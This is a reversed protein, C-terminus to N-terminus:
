DFFVETPPLRVSPKSPKAAPNAYGLAIVVPISYRGPIDLLQKVQVQDIGEMPCTALGHVQAAYLFTAAAFNNTQVGLGGDLREPGGRRLVERRSVSDQERIGCDAAFVVVVPAEKVKRGNKDLMAEALKERSEAARVTGPAGAHTQSDGPADQGARRGTPVGQVCLARPHSGGAAGDHQEPNAFSTLHGPVSPTPLLSAACEDSARSLPETTSASGGVVDLHM